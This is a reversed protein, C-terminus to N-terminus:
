YKLYGLEIFIFKRIKTYLVPIFEPDWKQIFQINNKPFTAAHIEYQHIPVIEGNEDRITHVRVCGDRARDSMAKTFSSSLMNNYVCVSSNRRIIYKITKERNQVKYSQSKSVIGNLEHELKSHYKRYIVWGLRRLLSIPITCYCFPM